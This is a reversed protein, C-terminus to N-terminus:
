PAKPSGAIKIEFDPNHKAIEFLLSLNKQYRFNAVWAYYGDTKQKPKLLDKNIEIPNYIKLIKKKKVSKSMAELQYDNQVLVYSCLKFALHIFKIKWKPQELLIRSDMMNDSAIRIIHKIGLRKCFLALYVSYWHPISEYIIDCKSTRLMRYIAPLRHTYCCLRKKKREPHYLDVINVWQVQPLLTRDDNQLKGQYIDHGLQLFAKMWVSTQVVAGGLLKNEGTFLDMNQYQTFLIKSM